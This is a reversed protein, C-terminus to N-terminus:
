KQTVPDQCDYLWIETTPVKKKAEVSKFDLEALSRNLAALLGDKDGPMRRVSLKRQGTATQGPMQSLLVRTYHALLSENGAATIVVSGAYILANRCTDVAHSDEPSFCLGEALIPEEKLPIMTKTRDNKILTVADLNM